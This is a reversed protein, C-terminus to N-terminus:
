PPDLAAALQEVRPETPDIRRAKKLLRRAQREDGFDHHLLGLAALPEAEERDLRVARRYFREAEEVRGHRVSLDGLALYSFPNRNASRDALSLLELAEENQGRLRLLAALNQYAAFQGPDLELAHRYAEEAKEMRGMRRLAVGYNIWSAALMPEARVASESWELAVELEGRRLHEAGRNSYFLAVATLDDIVRIRRYKTGEEVAFDILTMDHAPGFGIAIHDSHVILDGEKSYEEIDKVELFFVPVGVERAMGAFLHTFSLCNANASEFAEQATGTGSNDYDIGLGKDGLLHEILVHLRARQSAGRSVKSRAWERMEPSLEFPVVVEHVGRDELTDAVQRVSRTALSAAHM